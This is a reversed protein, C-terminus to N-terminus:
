KKNEMKDILIAVLIFSIISVFILKIYLKLPALIFAGIGCGIFILILFIAFYDRYTNKEEIKKKTKSM